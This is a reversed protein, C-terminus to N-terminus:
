FRNDKTPDTVRVILDDVVSVDGMNGLAVIASARIKSSFHDLGDRLVSVVETQLNEIEKKTFKPAKKPTKKKSATKKSDKKKTSMMLIM